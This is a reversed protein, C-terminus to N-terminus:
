RVISYERIFSKYSERFKDISHEKQYIKKFNISKELYYDYNDILLEIKKALDKPNESEFIEGIENESVIKPFHIINPVIIPKGYNISETFIGSEGNFYKKYPIVVCECSSFYYKLETDKIYKLDLKFSINKINKLKDLIFDKKFTEEKGAIIVLIEKEIYKFSELLIDLGKDDRTGGFYLISFKDKEIKLYEKANSKEIIETKMVPYNILMLNNGYKENNDKIKLYADKTHVVIKIKRILKKIYKEKVKNNPYWHEVGIININKFIKSLIYVWVINPDLYSVVLVKINNKRCFKIAKYLNLIEYFYRNFKNNDKFKNEILYINESQLENKTAKDLYATFYFYKFENKYSMINKNYFIHHGDNKMDYVCINM